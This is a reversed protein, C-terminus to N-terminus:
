EYALDTLNINKVKVKWDTYTKHNDENYTRTLTIGKTANFASITYNTITYIAHNPNRLVSDYKDMAYVFLTANIDRRFLEWMGDADSYQYQLVINIGNDFKEKVADFDFDSVKPNNPDDDNEPNDSRINVRITTGESKFIDMVYSKIAKTVAASNLLNNLIDSFCSDSLHEKSVSGKQLTRGSVANDALKAETVAKNAIVPTIIANDAIKSTTVASSAIKDETIANNDVKNTTVANDVIKNTTISSDKIKDTTIVGNNIILGIKKKPKNKIFSVGFHTNMIGM